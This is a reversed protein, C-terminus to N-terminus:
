GELRYFRFMPDEIPLDVVDTFGAEAAYRRLTAPRMVIGTAASPETCRGVPLCHLVSAAYFLRDLPGGPVAFEDAANEDMVVVPGHTLRRATRLAAVPDALDHIMEFALVGAHDGTLAPDTVDAVVFRVRDAVGAEAANRRAAEVSAPDVDFADVTAAPFGRALAIAAWGVGCGLEAVSGGARLAAELDPVAPLWESVLRGTYAARNFGGQAHHVGYDAYPVGGGTRYAREVAPMVRGASELFGALPLVNAPSDPDLLVAEAGMPLAYRRQDPAAAPDDVDLIAATAQQECWERVYRADVGTRAALEPATAPGAALGRYLGLRDGLGITLLEFAGLGAELIRGALQEAVQDPTHPATTTM